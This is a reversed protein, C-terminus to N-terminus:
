QQCRVTTGARMGGCSVTYAQGDALDYMFADAATPYYAAYQAINRNCEETLTEDAAKAKLMYDTAVWYKSRKAIEDGGCSAASWITGIIFYARGAYTKDLTILKQAAAYAKAYQGSKLCLSALQYNYDAASAQELDPSAIAEELYHIAKPLDERASYLRFLFYASQSSPELEYMSAAAHLYLDNSTCNDVSSLMKVINKVLDLDNPAAEYRPTFLAILNDCSAVNSTIFLTELDTKLKANMEDNRADAKRVEELVAMNRQYTEIVEEAGLKEAQYLEIAGKMNLLLINPSVKSGNAKIIEGLTEYLSASDEQMNNIIDLGKNNRAKVAYKPYYQARIDHITLLSDILAKRYEKNPKNRSILRRMLVTGDILMNQSATPPCLRYAKRWNPLAADYNKQKFYDKYFSLYKICEASDAGYKGQASVGTGCLAALLVTMLISVLKKM